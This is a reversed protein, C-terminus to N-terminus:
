VDIEKLLDITKYYAHHTFENKSWTGRRGLRVFPGTRMPTWAISPHQRRSPTPALHCTCNTELPKLASFTTVPLRPSKQDKFTAESWETSEHGFVSACRYWTRDETGDFLVTNDPVSEIAQNAIFIKQSRFQHREKQLCLRTAPVTSLLLSFDGRNRRVWDGDLSIVNIYREMFEWLGDYAEQLPWAQLAEGTQPMINNPDQLRDDAEPGYVKKRYQDISGRTIHNVPYGILGDTVEPIPKHLFQAGGLISKEPNSIIVFAKGSHACALAALLGAPGCGLIAIM